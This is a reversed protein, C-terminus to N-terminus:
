TKISVTRMDVLRGVTDVKNGWGMIGFLGDMVM